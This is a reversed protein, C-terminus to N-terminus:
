VVNGVDKLIPFEIGYAKAYLGIESASDQQNANIGLFAVGQPSFEENLKSLRPAYLRALPCETGLFALVVLKKDALEDLSQSAGRYDRLTFGTIQKEIPSIPESARVGCILGVFALLCLCPRSM